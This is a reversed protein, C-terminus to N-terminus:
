HQQEPSDWVEYLVKRCAGGFPENPIPYHSRVTCLLVAIDFHDSLIELATGSM